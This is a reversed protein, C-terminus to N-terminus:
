HSRFVFGGYDQDLSYRFESLRGAQQYGELMYAFSQPTAVCYRKALDVTTAVDQELGFCSVYASVALQELQSLRVWEWTDARLEAGQFLYAPIQTFSIGGQRFVLIPQEAQNFLDNCHDLFAGQNEFKSPVVFHITPEPTIDKANQVFVGRQHRQEHTLFDTHDMSAFSIAYDRERSDIPINKDDFQRKAQRMIAYNEPRPNTKVTDLLPQAVEVPAIDLASPDIMLYFAFGVYGVGVGKVFGDTKSIRASYLRCPETYILTGNATEHALQKDLLWVYRQKAEKLDDKGSIPQYITIEDPLSDFYAQELDHMLHHTETLQVPDACGGGNILTKLLHDTQNQAHALIAGAQRLWQDRELFCANTFLSETLSNPDAETILDQFATM